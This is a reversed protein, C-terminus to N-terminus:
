PCCSPRWHGVRESANTGSKDWRHKASRPDCYRRSLLGAKSDDHTEGSIMLDGFMGNKVRPGGETQVARLTLDTVFYVVTVLCRVDVFLFGITVLMLVIVVVM